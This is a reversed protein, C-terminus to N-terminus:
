MKSFKMLGRPFLPRPLQVRFVKGRAALESVALSSSTTRCKWEHQEKATRHRLSCRSDSQNPHTEKPYTSDLWYRAHPM